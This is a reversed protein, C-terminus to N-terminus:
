YALGITGYHREEFADAQVKLMWLYLGPRARDGNALQGNWSYWAPGINRDEKFVRHVGHGSLDYIELIVPTPRTLQLLNFFLKFTDNIGDGNPTFLKNEVFIEGVLKGVQSRPIAVSLGSLQARDDPGFSFANGAQLRQPLTGATSNYARGSFTTGFRFIPIDFTFAVLSSDKKVLPFRLGFGEQKAFDIEFTVPDGDITLNRINEVPANSDIELRDFGRVLGVARSLVAYHFTAREEAPVLSPYVEARLTDALPPQLYDFQVWNVKRTDFLDGTFDVRLQIYRRPELASVLENNLVSKWPSWNTLDEEIPGKERRNLRIYQSGEVVKKEGWVPTGLSDMVNQYFVLPTNDNGMRVQVSVESRITRGVVNERWRVQGVTARDGLDLIDSLYTGQKMYGTAYVEIEDIEWPIQSLSKLKILRTYQPEIDVTVIPTENDTDRRALADPSRQRNTLNPNIWLEFSRLFDNHYTTGPYTSVTNRPYFRISSVGIPNGFDLIIWIGFPNIPLLSTPRREFAIRHDGNVIGKLQAIVLRKEEVANPARIKGGEELVRSAINETQDFHRTSIWGPQFEFEITGGPTNTTDLAPNFVSSKVVLPTVGNGGSSWATTSGGLTISKIPQAHILVVPWCILSLLLRTIRGPNM